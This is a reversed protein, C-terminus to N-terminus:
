KNNDVSLDVDFSIPYQLAKIKTSLSLSTEINLFVHSQSWEMQQTQLPPTKHKPAPICENSYRCTHHDDSVGVDSVRASV